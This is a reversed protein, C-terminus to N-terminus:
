FPVDDTSSSTQDDVNDSLKGDVDRAAACRSDSSKDPGDQVIFRARELLEDFTVIEPSQCQRRFLEFSTFQDENAGHEGVFEKLNGILVYAKPQCLFPNEETPFGQQDRIRLRKGIKDLAEYVTKQIQAIADSLDKSIPWCATRKSKGILPTRHTKLEVFCLASIAGRTKMLADPRKGAQGVQAGSTIQELRQDDLSTRFIYDLGHGLIWKNQEFYAQWVDEDRGKNWERKKEAFFEEDEVLKEFVDLQAKRHAIAAIEGMTVDNRVIQEVVNPREAMLRALESDRLGRADFIEDDLRQSDATELDVFSIARLAKTFRDAESKRFTVSQKQPEGDIVDFQQLTIHKIKRSDEYFVALLEYRQENKIVVTLEGDIIAFEHIEPVDSVKSLMRVQRGDQFFPRTVYTRDPHKAIHYKYADTQPQPM